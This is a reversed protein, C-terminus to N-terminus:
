AAQAEMKEWENALHDRLDDGYTKIPLTIEEAWTPFFVSLQGSLKVDPHSINPDEQWSVAKVLHKNVYSLVKIDDRILAYGADHIQACPRIDLRHKSARVKKMFEVWARSNLLGYSQGLANGATRGEAEAEYPTAGTRRVVQKLLPTRVRLGFACTVYGTETARDLEGQVYEDSEVYLEHYLEEVAKAKEEPFGAQAMIAIYTGGYTLAFTPVKSDQRFQKYKVAISNISDVSDPDIDPMQDGFYAYARLCHGDYGDTYVKLKQTDKTLLASIRDELSDFDLGVFVWGPPAAVCSKLLKGLRRKVPNHHGGAPLNQLNPGSSSLRGSVTGGLNFFGFLYHWGDPGPVAERFAKIFTGLIKDIAKFDVLVDLLDKIGQNQTYAKLKELVDGSTAPLKTDTREIIPLDIFEYLLKQLQPASNPNFKEHKGMEKLSKYPRVKVGADKREKWDQYRADEAEQNLQQEFGQIASSAFIQDLCADLEAQTNIEAEITREMDIPLGTLQMQIIDWMADKFLDYVPEQEDKVLTYWHKNYVFHTSCSDVLNYELLKPLEIQNIDKIEEVAYNGAFEQAQEKLGLKNGACSNVALYTVLKTCDWQNTNGLMVELGQLLGDTDLIDKMFLQYILVTVDFSINHYKMKRNQAPARKYFEWFFNLLLARIEQAKEPENTYDVAFAVGEHQNWAFSITGIGADYHKLSFGEIDCALDEDMELLRDLWDAIDSVESPYECTQLLGHGPETYQGLRHEDLATLGMMIKARTEIPNYLVQRAAPVFVVQFQGSMSAPYINECVYGLMLDARKAGTLTKFYEPNSCVLYKVGLDELTPLLQDLYERQEHVKPKKKSNRIDPVWLDYAITTKEDIMSNALYERYLSDSELKVSLITVEFASPMFPTFTLYNM